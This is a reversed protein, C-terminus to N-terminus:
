VMLLEREKKPLNRQVRKRIKDVAQVAYRIFHFHDAIYKAKRFYTFAIDSYTEWLDGVVYKVNNRESEPIHKFYDCLFHKHRGELVDIIEHTEGDLM